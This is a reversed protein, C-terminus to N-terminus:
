CMANHVIIIICYYLICHYLINCYIASIIIIYYHLINCKCKLLYYLM